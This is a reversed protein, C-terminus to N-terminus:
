YMQLDNTSFSFIFPFVNRISLDYKKNIAICSLPFSSFSYRLLADADTRLRWGRSLGICLWRAPDSVILNTSPAWCVEMKRFYITYNSASSCYIFDSTSEYQHLNSSWKSFSAEVISQLRWDVLFNHHYMCSHGNFTLFTVDSIVCYLTACSSFFGEALFPCCLMWGWLCCCCHGRKRGRRSSSLSPMQMSSGTMQLHQRRRSGIRRRLNWPLPPPPHHHHHGRLDMHRKLHVIPFSLDVVSLVMTLRSLPPCAHTTSTSISAIYM